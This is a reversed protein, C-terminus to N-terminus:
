GTTTSANDKPYNGYDPHKRGMYILFNCLLWMPIAAILTYQLISM